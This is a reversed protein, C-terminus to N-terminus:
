SFSFVPLRLFLVFTQIVEFTPLFCVSPCIMEPMTKRQKTCRHQDQSHKLTHETQLWCSDFSSSSHGSLLQIHEAFCYLLLAFGGCAPEQQEPCGGEV